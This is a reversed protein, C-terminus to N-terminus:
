FSGKDLWNQLRDILGQVQERNLHMRTSIQVDGPIPFPIWGTTKGDPIVVGLRKADSVMISPDAKDLGLWVFATGPNNFSAETLGWASSQQLSCKKNNADEFEVLEFGRSTETHNGLM